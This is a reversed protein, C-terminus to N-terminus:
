EVYFTHIMFFVIKCDEIEKDTEITIKKVVLGEPEIYRAYCIILIIIILLSLIFRKQIKKM